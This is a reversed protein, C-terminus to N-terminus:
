IINREQFDDKKCSTIEYKLNSKETEFECNKIQMIQLYRHPLPKNILNM